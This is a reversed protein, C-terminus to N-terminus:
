RGKEAKQIRADVIRAFHLVSGTDYKEAVGVLALTVIYRGRRFWLGSTAVRLSNTKQTEVVGLSEEGVTPLRLAQFKTSSPKKLSAIGTLYGTHAAQVSTCLDIGSSIASMGSTLATANVFVVVSAAVIGPAPDERALAAGSLSKSSALTFSTPVDHSTLNVASPPLPRVTAAAPLAVAVCSLSMCLVALSRRFLAFM